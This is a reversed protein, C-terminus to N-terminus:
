IVVLRWQLFHYSSLPSSCFSCVAVVNSFRLFACKRQQLKIHFFPLSVSVPLVIPAVISPPLRYTYQIVTHTCLKRGFYVSLIPAAAIMIRVSPLLAIKADNDFVLSYFFFYHQFFFTILMLYSLLVPRLPPNLLTFRWLSYLKTIVYIVFPSPM